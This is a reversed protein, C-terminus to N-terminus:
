RGTCICLSWTVMLSPQVYVCTNLSLGHSFNNRIPKNKRSETRGFYAKGEHSCNLLSLYYAKSVTQKLTSVTRLSVSGRAFVTISSLNSLTASCLTLEAEEASCYRRGQPTRQTTVSMM